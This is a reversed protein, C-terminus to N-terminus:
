DPPAHAVWEYGCDRVKSVLKDTEDETAPIFQFEANIIAGASMSAWKEWVRRSDGRTDKAREFVWPYCKIGVDSFAKFVDDGLWGDFYPGDGARLAVWSCKLAQARGILTNIQVLRDKSGCGHNGFAVWAGFEM